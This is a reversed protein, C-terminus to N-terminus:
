LAGAIELHGALRIALSVLPLTPNSGGGTPFVSSGAVYLNANGHVKCNSDVVGTSSGSSMRTTGMQHAHGDAVIEAREDIIFSSLKVRALDAQAVERASLMALARVTRADDATFRWDLQVRPMGFPDTDRSLSIRSNPNPQQEILSTIVGDGPCNYDVFKRTFERLDPIRCGTERLFQKLIKLRGYSQPSANPGFDVIGNGILHEEMLSPKPALVLTQQWQEPATVVFRGIPVNLHEMFCRGVMGGDNGVGAFNDRSTTLLLRANEIAGLALVFIKSKAVARQMSYSTLVFEKVRDYNAGLRIETLNANYFFDINESQKLEDVYKEGFRTPPSLAFGSRVFEKLGLDNAPVPDLNAGAIDLIDKAEDINSLIEERSIPWGGLQGFYKRPQFDIPDFIGCRGGWHNSTGGFYRLRYDQVNNWYQRGVSKGAYLNQSQDTFELGGGEILLIRRRRQALKRAITIGAPGAGCICADYQVESLRPCAESFDFLM